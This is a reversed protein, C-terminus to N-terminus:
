CVGDTLVQLFHVFIIPPWFLIIQVDLGLGGPKVFSPRFMRAVVAKKLNMRPFDVMVYFVSNWEM